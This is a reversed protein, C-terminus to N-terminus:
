IPFAPACFLLGCFIAFEMGKHYAEVVREPGAAAGSMTPIM